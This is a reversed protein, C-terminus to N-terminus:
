KIIMILKHLNTTANSIRVSYIGSAYGFLEINGSYLSSTIQIQQQFLQQNFLNFVELSYNGNEFGSLKFNIFDNSPIPYVEIVENSSSLDKISTTPVKPVPAVREEHKFTFVKMSGPTCYAIDSFIEDIGKNCEINQPLVQNENLYISDTMLLAEQNFIIYHYTSDIFYNTSDIQYSYKINIYIDKLSDTDFKILAYKCKTLNEHPYVFFTQQLGLPQSTGWNIHSLNGNDDVFVTDMFIDANIRCIKVTYSSGFAESLGVILLLFTLYFFINFIKKRTFLNKM